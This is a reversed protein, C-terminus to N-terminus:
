RSWQEGARPRLAAGGGGCRARVRLTHRSGSPVAAGGRAGHNPAPRRGRGGAGRQEARTESGARGGWEESVQEGAGSSVQERRCRRRGM